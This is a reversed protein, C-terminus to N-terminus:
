KLRDTWYVPNRHLHMVAWIFASENELSYLLAYPYRNLLIRRVGSKLLPWAKPFHEIRHLAQRVELVFNEATETSKENYFSVTQNLEKAADKHFSIIM